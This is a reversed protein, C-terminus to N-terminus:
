AKRGLAVIYLETSSKRTADPRATKVREYHDRVRRMTEEFGDGMFIKGVFTSSPCGLRLALELARVFLEVSRVQDTFAIGSTDPAMDSLVVNFCSRQQEPLTQRLLEPEVSLVDGVVVATNAPLPPELAERDLGVVFGGAGVRQAAYLLWSGPRCGLDLVRQAPRLLRFRRDLEELKYISRAPYDERKARRYYPDHRHRRDSLRSM